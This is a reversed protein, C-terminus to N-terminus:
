KVEPPEPLPMWHTVKKTLMKTSRMATIIEWKDRKEWNDNGAYFGVCMFGDCPTFLLCMRKKEPLREEVPIWSPRLSEPEITPLDEVEDKVANLSESYIPVGGYTGIPYQKITELVADADILQM